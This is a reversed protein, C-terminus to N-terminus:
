PTVAVGKSPNKSADRWDIEAPLEKTPVGSDFKLHSIDVGNFVKGKFAGFEEPTMDSFQNVGLRFNHIGADAEANHRQILSVTDAYIQQRREREEADYDREFM